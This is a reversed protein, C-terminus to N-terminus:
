WWFVVGMPVRWVFDQVTSGAKLHAYNLEVGISVHGNSFNKQFYPYIYGSIYRGPAGSAPTVEDGQRLFNWHAGIEDNCYSGERSLSSGNADQGYMFYGEFGFEYPRGALPHVAKFGIRNLIARENIAIYHSDYFNIAEEFSLTWEPITTVKASVMALHAFATASWDKGSELYIGAKEVDRWRLDYSANIMIGYFLSPMDVQVFAEGFLSDTYDGRDSSTGNTGYTNPRIGANFTVNYLLWKYQAMVKIAKCLHEWNNFKQYSDTFPAVPLGAIIKFGNLAKPLFEIGTFAADDGDGSGRMALSSVFNQASVYGYYLYGANFGNGAFYGSYFRLQDDIFHTTLHMEDWVGNTTRDGTRDPYMDGGYWPGLGAGLWVAARFDVNPVHADFNLFHIGNQFPGFESMVDGKDWDSDATKKQIQQAAVTSTYDVYGGIHVDAMALSACSLFAAGIIFKHLKM